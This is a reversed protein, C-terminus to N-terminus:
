EASIDQAGGIGYCTGNQTSLMCCHFGFWVLIKAQTSNITQLSFVFLLGVIYIQYQILNYQITNYITNSPSLDQYVLRSLMNLLLSMVKGVFTWRTLAITKGTTMYLRSLQITFFASCWIISAKLSHHQLLSKLTEQVALLDFWDIRFSILGSHENSPSINFSFSWYKPWRMHLASESSFVRRSPFISPLLLFLHCPILHNSPM